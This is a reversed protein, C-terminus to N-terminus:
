ERLRELVDAAIPNLGKGGCKICERGEPANQSFGSYFGSGGCAPCMWRELASRLLDIKEENTV